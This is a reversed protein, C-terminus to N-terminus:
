EEEDQELEVDDNTIETSDNDMSFDSDAVTGAMQQAVMARTADLREGVKDAMLDNFAQGAKAFDKDIANVIIDDVTAM